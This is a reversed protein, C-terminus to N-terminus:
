QKKTKQWADKMVPNKDLYVRVIDGSVRNFPCSFNVCKSCFYQQMIFFFQLGTLLTGVAIATTGFLMLQQPQMSLVIVLCIGYIMVVVPFLLILLFFSVLFMKEIKNM